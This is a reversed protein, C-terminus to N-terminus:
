SALVNARVEYYSVVESPVNTWMSSSSTTTVVASSANPTNILSYHLVGNFRKSKIVYGKKRLASIACQCSDNTVSAFIALSSLPTSTTGDSLREVIKKQSGRLNQPRSQNMTVRLSTKTFAQCFKIWNAVKTANLTGSHQRFEITGYKTYSKSNLKCFRTTSLTPINNAMHNMSSSLSKCYTNNNRRRSLPMFADIKAEYQNYRTFLNKVATFSADSVDIHLHFGCSKNVDAGANNLANVARKAEEIGEEGRLIPSVVEFGNRGNISSDNIVKWTQYGSHRYCTNDSVNLGADRLVRIVTTQPMGYAELEIGFNRM